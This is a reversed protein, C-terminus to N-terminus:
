SRVTVKGEDFFIVGPLRASGKHMRAYANLKAKDIQLYERPLLQVARAEDGNVAKWTWKEGTTVGAVHPTTPAITVV